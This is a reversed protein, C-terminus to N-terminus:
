FNKLVGLVSPTGLVGVASFATAHTAMKKEGARLIEMRKTLDKSISLGVARM